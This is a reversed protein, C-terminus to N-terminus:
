YDYVYKFTGPRPCATMNHFYEFESPISWPLVYDKGIGMNRDVAAIVNLQVEPPDPMEVVCLPIVCKLTNM